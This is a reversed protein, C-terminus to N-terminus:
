LQISISTRAQHQSTYDDAGAPGYALLVAYTQGAILTRDRSDGSNLPIDFALSTSGGSESGGTIVVNDTGGAGADPDHSYASSGYDDRIFVTDNRVYGIIFNAGQMGAGPQPDFGAAAWGTTPAQLRVHLVAGEAKWQLTINNSTVSKFGQATVTPPVPGLPESKRTNCALAAILTMGLALAAFTRNM